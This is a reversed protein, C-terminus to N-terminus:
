LSSKNTTTVAAGGAFRIFFIVNELHSVINFCGSSFRLREYIKQLLICRFLLNKARLFHLTTGIRRLYRGFLKTM